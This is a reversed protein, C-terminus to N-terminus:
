VVGDGEYQGVQAILFFFGLRWLLEGWELRRCESECTGM